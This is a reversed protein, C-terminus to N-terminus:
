RVLFMAGAAAYAEEASATAFLAPNVQNNYDTAIWDANKAGRAIRVEDITGGFNYTTGAGAAGIKITGTYQVNHGDCAASNVLAGDRYLLGTAGEKNWVFAAHHWDGKPDSAVISVRTQNGDGFWAYLLPTTTFLAFGRYASAGGNSECSVIYRNNLATTRYWASVTFSNTDIGLGTNGIGTNLFGSTEGFSDAGDVKGTVTMDVAGGPVAGNGLVTSDLNTGSGEGLHWVAVYGNTWVDAVDEQCSASANGYYIYIDTDASGSLFPLRVWAALKGGVADYDEIEHSLRSVGNSSTFLIDDGNALANAFLSGGATAETILVPYDALDAAVYSSDITIRQRFGWGTYWGEAAMVNVVCLSVICGYALKKM